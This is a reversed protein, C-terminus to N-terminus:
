SLQWQGSEMRLALLVPTIVLLAAGAYSALKLARERRLRWLGLPVLLAGEPRALYVGGALAGSVSARRAVLWAVLLAGALTEPLVQVSAKVLAPHVAAVLVAVNATREDVLRRVLVHLLPLAALGAALATLRGALELPLGVSALGAVAGPYLPSYYGGLVALVKGRQLENALWLYAPGDPHMLPDRLLRAVRVVLGLALAVALANGRPPMSRRGYARM